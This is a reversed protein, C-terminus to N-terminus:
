ASNPALRLAAQATTIGTLEIAFGWAFFSIWDAISQGANPHKSYLETLGVLTVLLGFLLATLLGANDSLFQRGQALLGSLAVRQPPATAAAGPAVVIASLADLRVMAGLATLGEAPGSAVPAFAAGAGSPAELTAIAQAFDGSHFADLATKLPPRSRTEADADFYLRLFRTYAEAWKSKEEQAAQTAAPDPWSDTAIEKPWAVEIDVVDLLRQRTEADLGAATIQARQAGLEDEIAALRRSLAIIAAEASNLSDVVTAAGTADGRDILRRAHAIAAIYDPPLTDDRLASLDFTLDGDRARLSGLKAGTDALWKTILGVLVGLAIVLFALVYGGLSHESLTASVTVPKASVGTSALRLEGSYTGSKVGQPDFTAVVKVVTGNGVVSATATVQSAPFVDAAGTLDDLVVDIATGTPIPTPASYTLTITKPQRDLGFPIRRSTAAPTLSVKAPPTAAPPTSPPTPTATPATATLTVTAQTTPATTTAAASTTTGAAVALGAGLAAVVLALL